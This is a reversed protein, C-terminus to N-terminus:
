ITDDHHPGTTARMAGGSYKGSEARTNPFNEANAGVSVLFLAAGAVRGGIMKSMGVM